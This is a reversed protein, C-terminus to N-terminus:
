LLETANFNEGRFTQCPPYKSTYGRDTKVHHGITSEDGIHNVLSPDHVYETVGLNRIVESIAGDITNRRETNEAKQIIHPHSLIKKVAERPFVLALASRGFQNSPYWGSGEPGCWSTGPTTLVTGPPEPNPPTTQYGPPFTYLNWCQDNKLKCRNLYQRLNRYTIIDDQFLCYRDVLPERLYLEYLSLIWNGHLGLAPQRFTVPLNLTSYDSQKGDIVDVFLRSNPFGGASLSRLTHPLTTFRRSPVTTIGYTWTPWGINSM